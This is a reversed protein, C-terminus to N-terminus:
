MNLKLQVPYCVMSSRVSTVDGYEDTSVSFTASDLVVLSYTASKTAYIKGTSTIRSYRYGSSNNDQNCQLNIIKGKLYAITEQFATTQNPYRYATGNINVYGSKGISLEVTVPTPSVELSTTLINNGEGGGGGKQFVQIM